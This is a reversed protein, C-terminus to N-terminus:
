YYELDDGVYQEYRDYKMLATVSIYMIGLGLIPMAYCLVYFINILLSREGSVDWDEPISFGAVATDMHDVMADLAIGGAFALIVGTLIMTFGIICGGFAIWFQQGSM